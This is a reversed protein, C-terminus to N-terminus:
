AYSFYKISREPIDKPFPASHGSRNNRNQDIKIVPPSKVIDRRWLTTKLPEKQHM